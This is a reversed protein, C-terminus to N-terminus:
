NECNKVSITQLKALIGLSDLGCEVLQEEHSGHAIFKDDIAIQILQGMYNVGALYEGVASGAGGMRQHEEITVFHTVGQSILDDILKDDLPKVWRMDVVTSVIATEQYFAQCATLGDHLRTGFALIAIKKDVPKVSKTM